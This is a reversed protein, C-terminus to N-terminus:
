IDISQYIEITMDPFIEELEKRLARVLGDRDKRGYDPVVYFSIVKEDFDVTFLQAHRIGEHERVRYLITDWIKAARPDSLDNGTIGVSTLDLGHEAAKRILRRSLRTAEAARMDENVEIDVSGINKNEGYSHIVLNCVNMVGEEAALVKKIEQEMEPDPRSGIIKDMCERFMGIGTWVILLSILICLYPEINLNATRLIAIAALISISVLADGLAETGTMIMAVSNLRKGQRRLTVGYGVKCIVSIVLIVIAFINYEPASVPHIITKVAEFVARGGAYIVLMTILLSSIYELRGYGMPHERDAKKSAVTASVVAILSSLMDSFGNISDLVIAKSHISVGVALKIVSLILNIVISIVNYKIIQRNRENELDTRQM